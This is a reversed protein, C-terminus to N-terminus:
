NKGTWIIKKYGLTEIKDILTAVKRGLIDLILLKVHTKKAVAFKITTSPNFPNPYNQYLALRKPLSNGNPDIGVSFESELAGMDPANGQYEDDTMNLITDNEWVFFTAGRDVCPSAATLNYDFPEGGKFLPDADKNGELWNIPSTSVASLGEYGGELDTHFFTLTTEASRASIPKNTGNNWIITNEFILNGPYASYFVGYRDNKTTNGTITNHIFTVKGSNVLFAGCRNDAYNNAFIVRELELDSEEVYLGGAISTVSNGQIILHSLRGQSSGVYMAGGKLANNNTFTVHDINFVSGLAKLAGGYNSQGNTLTLNQMGAQKVHNILILQNTNEGDLITGEQSQGTITVYKKIFIPFTEGTLSTSYTGDALIIKHPRLSDAFILEMAKTITKFPTQQSLGDNQDNGSPSVYLDAEAQPIKGNRIDFSFNSLPFAYKEVPYKVTFTDLIVTIPESDNYLDWGDKYLTNFYINSRQVSDFSATAHNQLYIGGGTNQRITVASFRVKASDSGFVGGGTTANNHEILMNKLEVESDVIVM